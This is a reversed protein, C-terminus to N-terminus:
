MLSGCRERLSLPVSVMVPVLSPSEILTPNEFSDEFTITQSSPAFVSRFGEETFASEM